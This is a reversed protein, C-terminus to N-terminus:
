FPIAAICAATIASGVSGANASGSCNWSSPIASTLYGVVTNVIIPCAIAGVVGQAQVDQAKLSMPKGNSLHIDGITQWSQGAALAKVAALSSPAQLSTSCFSVNGLATLLSATIQDPASCNLIGAISQAVGGVAATEVDCAASQVPSMSGKTCGAIMFMTFIAFCLRIM